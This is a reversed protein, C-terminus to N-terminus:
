LDGPDVFVCVVCVVRFHRGSGVAVDADAAGVM